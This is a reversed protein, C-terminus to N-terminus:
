INTRKQSEVLHLLDNTSVHGAIMNTYMFLLYKIIKNHLGIHDVYYKYSMQIELRYLPSIIM